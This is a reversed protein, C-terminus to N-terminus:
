VRELDIHWNAYNTKKGEVMETIVPVGVSRLACMVTHIQTIGLGFGDMATIGGNEIIFKCVEYKQTGSKIEYKNMIQELVANKNM